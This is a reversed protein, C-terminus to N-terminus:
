VDVDEVRVSGRSLDRLQDRFKDLRDELLRIRWHSGHEDFTEELKEGAVQDLLHHLAGLQEFPAHLTLERY